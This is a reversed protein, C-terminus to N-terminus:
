TVGIRAALLNSTAIVGTSFDWSVAQVFIPLGVVAPVYPIPVSATAAGTGLNSLWVPVAPAAWVFCAPSGAGALSVPLNVGNWQRDDFGFWASALVAWHPALNAAQLRTVAAIVARDPTTLTLDGYGTACGVERVQWTGLGPDRLRWVEGRTGIGGFLIVEQRDSDYAACTGEGVDPAAPGVLLSWDTGDWLWTDRLGVTGGAGGFVITRARQRDFVQVHGHRAPPSTAPSRQTWDAGDFEWTDGFVTTGNAGGFLVVRDRPVDYCMAANRRAPPMVAPTLSTWASGNWAWFDGLAPTTGEGGFVLTRGRLRDYCMAPDFRGPPREVQVPAAWAAGNWERAYNPLQSGGGFMVTVRRNEDFVLRHQGIAIGTNVGRDGVRWLTGDLEMTDRRNFAWEWGGQMVTRGRFSDYAMAAGYRCQPLGHGVKTWGSADCRWTDSELDTYATSGAQWGIVEQRATDMVMQIPQTSALPADALRSWGQGDYAWVQATRTSGLYANQMLVRATAPDYLLPGGPRPTPLGATSRLSWQSGNWARLGDEHLVLMEARAGDYVVNGYVPPIAGTQPVLTWTTGDWEWLDPSLGGLLTLSGGRMVVRDRARDYVMDASHRGVPSALPALQTWNAGDFVWTEGLVTTRNAGGFLVLRGRLSDYAVACQRRKSPRNPTEIRRWSGQWAWTDDLPEYQGGGFLVAAGLGAHFVFSAHVRSPPYPDLTWELAGTAQGVVPAATAVLAAFSARRLMTNM